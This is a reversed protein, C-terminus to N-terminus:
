TSPAEQISSHVFSLIAAINSLRIALKQISDLIELRVKLDPEALVARRTLSRLSASISLLEQELRLKEAQTLLINM